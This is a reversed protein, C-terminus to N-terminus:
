AALQLASKGGLGARAFSEWVLRGAANGDRAIRRLDGEPWEVVSAPERTPRRRRKAAKRGREVEGILEPLTADAGVVAVAAKIAAEIMDAQLGLGQLYQRIATEAASAPFVTDDGEVPRREPAASVAAPEAVIQTTEEDFTRSFLALDRYQSRLVADNRIISHVIGHVAKFDDEAVQRIIIDDMQEPFAPNDSTRRTLRMQARMFVKIALDPIGGTVEFMADREPQGLPMQSITYQYNWLDTLFSAWEKSDRKFPEWPTGFRGVIRRATAADRMFLERADPTGVFLVPVGVTNTLLVMFRVLDPITRDGPLWVRRRAELDDELYQVEDVVICGIAHNNAVVGMNVMMTAETAHSGAYLRTYRNDRLLGDVKAFFSRCLGGISGGVPTDLRVYAIQPPGVPREIVQKPFIGLANQVTVTKGMGPYGALLGTSARNEQLLPPGESFLSGDRAREAVALVRAEHELTGDERHVYGWRVMSFLDEAFQMARAGPRFFGELRRMAERRLHPPMKKDEPSWSPKKALKRTIEAPSLHDGLAEIYSNSAFEPLTKM